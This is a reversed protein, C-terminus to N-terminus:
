AVVAQGIAEKQTQALAERSVSFPALDVPPNEGTLLSAMCDGILPGFKFARGSGGSFVAVNDAIKDMVFYSDKTM